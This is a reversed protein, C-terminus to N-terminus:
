HKINYLLFFFPPPYIHPAPALNKPMQVPSFAHLKLPFSDFRYCTISDGVSFWYNLKKLRTKDKQCKDLLIQYKFQIPSSYNQIKLFSFFTIKTFFIQHKGLFHFFNTTM